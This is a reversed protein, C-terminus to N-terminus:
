VHIKGLSFFTPYLKILLQYCYCAEIILMYVVRRILVTILEKWKQSM